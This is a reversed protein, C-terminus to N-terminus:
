PAIQIPCNMQTKFNEERCINCSNDLCLKKNKLELGTRRFNSCGRLTEVFIRASKYDKYSKLKKPYGSTSAFWKNETPLNKPTRSIENLQIFSVGPISSFLASPISSFLASKWKQDDSNRLNQEITSLNKQFLAALAFEGVGNISLDVNKIKYLLNDDSTIPGGIIALRNSPNPHYDSWLNLLRQTFRLDMTMSSLCIIPFQKLIETKESIITEGRILTTKVEGNSINEIFGAVFRPGAGIFDRTFIRKGDGVTLCDM